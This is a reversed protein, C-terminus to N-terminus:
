TPRRGAAADAVIRAIRAAKTEDKRAMAIATLAIKRASPPFADWNARAAPDADLAATLAPPEIGADPGDLVSWMGNERALDVLRQGEPRLRGEAALRAIRAKNTAAWASAPSRPAFWLMSREDDLPKSQGDIWGVCLAELVAEEYDIRPRGTAPRWLVLWAGDGTAAHEELWERWQAVSEVPVRPATDMKGM